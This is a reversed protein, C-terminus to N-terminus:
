TILIGEDLADDGCMGVRGTLTPFCFCTYETCDNVMINPAYSMCTIHYRGRLYALTNVYPGLTVESTAIIAYLDVM